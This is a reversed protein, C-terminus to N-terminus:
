SSPLHVDCRRGCTPCVIWSVGDCECPDRRRGAQYAQCFPCPTFPADLNPGFVRTLTVPHGAADLLERGAHWTWGHGDPCAIAVTDADYWTATEAVDTHVVPPGDPRQVVAVPAYGPVRMRAIWLDADLRTARHVIVAADAPDAPDPGVYGRTERWALVLAPWQRTAPDGARRRIAWSHLDLTLEAVCGATRQELWAAADIVIRDVAIRAHTGM